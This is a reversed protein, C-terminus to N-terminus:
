SVPTLVNSRRQPRARLRRARVALRRRAAEVEPGAIKLPLCGLCEWILMVDRRLPVVDGGNAFRGRDGTDLYSEAALGEAVLLDHRPLELHLYEVVGMSVQAITDDNILYRIPILVGEALVAHQPSLYLDCHPRNAAFAGARIRVPNVLPGAGSVRGDVVRRGIWIIPVVKGSATTVPDGPSLREIPVEGLPTLIRTGRAYCVLPLGVDALIGLDLHSIPLSAGAPLGFGGMLDGALPDAASSGLHYYNEAANTTTLPVPGGYVSEATPGTFFAGNATQQIYHDYLTELGGISGDSARYGTMGFGHALEHRFVTILDYQNAPIPDATEPTPDIFLMPVANSNLSITIESATGPLAQGTTLMHIAAPQGLTRGDLTGAPANATPATNALLNSAGLPAINLLVRVVGAGTVYQAWDSLARGLDAVISTGLSGLGATDNLTISFQFGGTTAAQPAEAPITKTAPLPGATTEAAPAPVWSWAWWSWGDGPWTLLNAGPWAEHGIIGGSRSM